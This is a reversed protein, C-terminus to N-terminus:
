EEIPKIQDLIMDIALNLIMMGQKDGEERAKELEDIAQALTLSLLMQEKNCITHTDHLTDM